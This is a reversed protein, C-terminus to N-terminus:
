REEETTSEVVIIGDLVHVVGNSADWDKAALGAANLAERTIKADNITTYQKANLLSTSKRKGNIIHNAVLTAVEEDSLGAVYALAADEDAVDLSRVFAPDLPALITYADTGDLTERLGAREIAATMVDFLGPEHNALAEYVTPYEVKGQGQAYVIGVAAVIGILVSIPLFKQM